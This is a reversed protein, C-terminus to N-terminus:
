VRWRTARVKERLDEVVVQGLGLTGARAGGHGTFDAHLAETGRNLLSGWPGSM